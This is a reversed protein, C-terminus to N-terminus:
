IVARKCIELTTRSRTGRRHWTKTLQKEREVIKSRARKVPRKEMRDRHGGSAKRSEATRTGRAKRDPQEISSPRRLSM